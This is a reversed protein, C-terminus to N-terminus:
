KRAGAGGGCDLGLRKLTRETDGRGPLIEAKAETPKPRGQKPLALVEALSLRRHGGPLEWWDLRGANM